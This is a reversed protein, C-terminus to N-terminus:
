RLGGAESSVLVREIEEGRRCAPPPRGPPRLTSRLEFRDARAAVWGASGFPTGRQASRRLAALEHPTEPRDVAAAWRPPRPLPWPDLLRGARLPNREVYCWVMV